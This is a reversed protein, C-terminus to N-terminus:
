FTLGENNEDSDDFDLSGSVYKLSLKRAKSRAIGEAEQHDSADAYITKFNNQKDEGLATYTGRSNM